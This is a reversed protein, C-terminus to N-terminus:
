YKDKMLEIMSLIQLLKSGFFSYSHGKLLWFTLIRDFFPGSNKFPFGRSIATHARGYAIELNEIKVLGRPVAHRFISAWGPLYEGRALLLSLNDAVKSGHRRRRKFERSSGGVERFPANTCLRRWAAGGHPTSM